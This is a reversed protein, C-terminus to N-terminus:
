ANTPLIYHPPGRGSAESSDAYSYSIGAFALIPSYVQALAHTSDSAPEFQPHKSAILALARYPCLPPAERLYSESDGRTEQVSGSCHHKGGTSCCVLVTPLALLTISASAVSTWGVLALSITAFIRRM